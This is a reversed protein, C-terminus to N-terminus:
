PPFRQGEQSPVALTFENEIGFELSEMDTTRPVQYVYIEKSGESSAISGKTSYYISGFPIINIRGEIKADM